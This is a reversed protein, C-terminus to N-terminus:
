CMAGRSCPHRRRCGCVNSRNMSTPQSKSICIMARCMPKPSIIIMIASLISSRMKPFSGSSNPMFSRRWRKTTRWSWHRGSHPPSLTPLRSHKERELRGWCPKIGIGRSWARWCALLPQPNTALRSLSHNWNLNLCLQEKSMSRTNPFLLWYLAALALHCPAIQVAFYIVFIASLVM